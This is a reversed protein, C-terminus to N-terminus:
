RTTKRRDRQRRERHRREDGHTSAKAVGATSLSPKKREIRPLESEQDRKILLRQILATNHQHEPLGRVRARFGSTNRLKIVENTQPDILEKLHGGDVLASIQSSASSREIGMRNLITEETGPGNVRVDHLIQSQTLTHDRDDIAEHSTEPDTVRAGPHFGIENSSM